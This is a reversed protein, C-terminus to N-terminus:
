TTPEPPAPLPMWHTPPNEETFSGDMSFWYPDPCDDYEPCRCEGGCDGLYAGHEPVDWYGYTLRPETPKGEFTQAPAWLLIHTGDKPATSIPQWESM